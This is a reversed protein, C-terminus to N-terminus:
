PNSVEFHLKIATEWMLFCQTVDDDILCCGLLDFTDCKEEVPFEYYDLFYKMVSSSGRIAAIKLPTEQYNTKATMPGGNRCLLMVTELKNAHAAYHLATYRDISSANVSAGKSILYACLERSAIAAMLCSYGKETTKRIDASHEVLFEVTACWLPPAEIDNKLNRIKFLGKQEVDPDCEDLLYKTIDANGKLCAVYLAPRGDIKFTVISKRQSITLMCLTSIIKNPKDEDICTHIIRAIKEIESNSLEASM